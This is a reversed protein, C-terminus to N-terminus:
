VSYLCFTDADVFSAKDLQTEVWSVGATLGDPTRQCIHAATANCDVELAGCHTKSQLSPTPPLLLLSSDLPVIDVAEALSKIILALLYWMPVLKYSLTGCLARKGTPWDCSM